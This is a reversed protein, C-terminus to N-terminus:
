PRVLPLRTSLATGYGPESEITLTGAVREARSRMGELGFGGTRTRGPLQQPDFGRGDDRIDLTVEGDMYSLTVGVRSADAHRATNTLAEQAIRLLAASVEAHLERADGTIAYEAHIRHQESWRVVSKRLAEPLKEGTLDPPALNQVARRAEGLSHRALAAARHVHQRATAAEPAAEVAQLQTIIGAIGQAVTDHIEAALRGREETIGAERAQRLLQAQLFANEDLAQRLATNAHELEAITAARDASREEEHRVFHAIMTLLANNVLLLGAFLAWQEAHAFPLGGSQAAALPLSCAVAGAKRLRRGPILENHDIYGTAAYFAFFPNLWTLAAGIAWRLAFYTTSATGPFTRAHRSGGWWLQLLLAAAILAGTAIRDGTAPTLEPKAASLLTGTALLWYPHWRLVTAWHRDLDADATTM